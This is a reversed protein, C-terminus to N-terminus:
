DSEQPETIDFIPIVCESQLQFVLSLMEGRLLILVFLGTYKERKNYISLHSSLLDILELSEPFRLPAGVSGRCAIDIMIFTM